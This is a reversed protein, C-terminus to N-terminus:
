GFTIWVIFEFITLHDASSALLLLLFIIFLTIYPFTITKYRRQNNVPNVKQRSAAVVLYGLTIITIILPLFFHLTMLATFIRTPFKHSEGDIKSALFSIALTTLIFFFLTKMSRKYENRDTEKSTDTSVSYKVCYPTGPVNREFTHFKHRQFNALNNALSCSPRVCYHGFDYAEYSSLSRQKYDKCLEIVTKKLNEVMSQSNKNVSTLKQVREYFQACEQQTFNARLTEYSSMVDNDEDKESWKSISVSCSDKDDTWSALSRPPIKRYSAVERFLGFADPRYRQDYVLCGLLILKISTSFAIIEFLKSTDLVIFISSILACSLVAYYPVGRKKSTHALFTLPLLNDQALSSLLRTAPVFIALMTGSLGCVSGVTMVYKASPIGLQDFIDPLFMKNPYASVDAVLTFVMTTLFMILSLAIIIFPLSIALKKQPNKTEELLFTLTEIGIYASLYYSAGKLVGAAGNKFFGAALWNNVNAFYFGVFITSNTTLVCISVMIFSVTALVRINCCLIISAFLIALIAFLDIKTTFISNLQIIPMELTFHEDFFGRFLLNMHSSLNKAIIVTCIIFHLLSIWAIIFASLEGFCVYTFNYLLCSKPMSCILENMHM